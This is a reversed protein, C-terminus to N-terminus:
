QTGPWAPAHPRESAPAGESAVATVSGHTPVPRLRVALTDGVDVVLPETVHGVDGGGVEGELRVTAAVDGVDGFWEDYVDAIGEGYSEPQYGRM